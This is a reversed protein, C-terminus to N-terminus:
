EQIDAFRHDTKDWTQAAGRGWKLYQLVARHSAIIAVANSVFVRPISLLAQGVGYERWVFYARMALRWFFLFLTGTFIFRLDPPFSIAQVSLTPMAERLLFVAAYLLAAWYGILLLLSSLVVRRDRWLMWHAFLSHIFRHPTGETERRMEAMDAALRDWGQLAIGLVWRTKQRISTSLTDPFYAQTAILSGDSAKARVFITRQGGLGARWGLEYDETISDTDFPQGRTLTLKEILAINIATGVGASPVPAGLTHRLPLEKGHAEAFEDCYHGAVWISNRDVLPLVPIQILDHEALYAAYLDLEQAHVKDEADHLVVANFRGQWEPNATIARWINNLNDAKTTPGPRLNPICHVNDHDSALRRAVVLTAEDNPYCGLFVDYADQPWSRLLHAVMPAIVESERWLPIFIAFKKTSVAEDAGLQSTTLTQRRWQGKAKKGLWLLDFLMDDIGCLLMGACAFLM